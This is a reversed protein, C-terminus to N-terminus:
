RDVRWVEWPFDNGTSGGSQLISVQMEYLSPVPISYIMPTASIGAYTFTEDYIAVSSGGTQNKVYIRIRLSEGSALESADVSAVFVGNESITDVVYENDLTAITQTGTAAGSDAIQPM